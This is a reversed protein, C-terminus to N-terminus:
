LYVCWHTVADVAWVDVLRMGHCGLTGSELKKDLIYSDIMFTLTPYFWGYRPDGNLMM